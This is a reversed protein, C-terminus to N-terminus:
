YETPEELTILKDAAVQNRQQRALDLATHGRSDTITHDAGKELLLNVMDNRGFLVAFMLATGGNCHQANINAGYELLIEGITSYGKFAAGMLATNGGNDAVNPDAGSQLLFEVAGPQNNYSAIILPTYGRDDKSDILVNGYSSIIEKLVPVNGQRAAAFLAPTIDTM